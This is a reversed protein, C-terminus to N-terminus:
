YKNQALCQQLKLIVCKNRMKFRLFHEVTMIKMEYSLVIVCVHVSTHASLSEELNDSKTLFVVSIQAGASRAHFTHDM